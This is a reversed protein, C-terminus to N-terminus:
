LLIQELKQQEQINPSDSASTRIQTRYNYRRLPPSYSPIEIPVNDQLDEQKFTQVSPINSADKVQSLSSPEDIDETQVHLQGGDDHRAIQIGPYDASVLGTSVESQEIPTFRGSTVQNRGGANSNTASQVSYGYSQPGQNQPANYGVLRTIADLENVYIPGGALDKESTIIGSFTQQLGDRNQKEILQRNINILENSLGAQSNAAISGSSSTSSIQAATGGSVSAGIGSSTRTATRTETNQPTIRAPAFRQAGTARVGVEQATITTPQRPAQSAVISSPRKPIVSVPRKPAQPAQPIYAGYSGTQTLGGLEELSVAIGDLEAENKVIGGFAQLVGKENQKQILGRNLTIIDDSQPLIQAPTSPKPIPAVRAPAAVPIPRTVTNKFKQEISSVSGTSQIAPVSPKYGRFQSLGGLQDLTISVRGIDSDSNVIGGFTQSFGKESQKQILQRNIFKIDDSLGAQPLNQSSIKPKPASVQQTGTRSSGISGIRTGTSGTVQGSTVRAGTYKLKEDRIAVPKRIQPVQKPQSLGGLESLSIAIGALESETKAVGGFTQLVGEENQRQILQRNILKLNDSSGISGATNSLTYQNTYRQTQSTGQNSRGPTVRPASSGLIGSTVRTGTYKFTQDRGTNSSVVRNTIKPKAVAVPQKYQIAPALPQNTGYGSFQELSVPLGVLDSESKVVGGFAQLVGENNQRQILERNILKLNDDSGYSGGANGLFFQNNYGQARSIGVTSQGPIVRPTSPGLIGSSIRNGTYKYTQGRNASTSVKPAKPLAVPQKLEITPAIPQPGTYGGFQELSVTLGTLDSESNVVGGFTQLVGEQNQRQILQQNIIKINESLDNVQSGQISIEPKPSSVRPVVPRTSGLAAASTVKAPSTSVRSTTVRPKESKPKQDNLIAKKPQPLGAPKGTNYTALNSLSISIDGLNSDPKVVGGFTEIFGQQNQRQILERNIKILEDSSGQQPAIQFPKRKPSTVRQIGAGSQDVPRKQIKLDPKPKTSTTITAVNGAVGSGSKAAEQGVSGSVGGVEEITGDAYVIVERAGGSLYGGAKLPGGSIDGILPQLDASSLSGANGYVSGADVITGDEYVIVERANGLAQGSAM